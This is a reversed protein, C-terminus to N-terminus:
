RWIQYMSLESMLVVGVIVLRSYSRLHIACQVLCYLRIETVDPYSYTHVHGTTMSLPKATLGALHAFRVTSGPAEALVLSWRRFEGVGRCVEFVADCLQRLIGLKRQNRSCTWVRFM